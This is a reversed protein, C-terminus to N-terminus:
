SQLESNCWPMGIPLSSVVYVSRYSAGVGVHM